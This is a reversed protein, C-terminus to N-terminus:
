QAGGRAARITRAQRALRVAAAQVAALTDDPLAALDRGADDPRGNLEAALAGMATFRERLQRALVDLAAVTRRVADAGATPTPTPPM